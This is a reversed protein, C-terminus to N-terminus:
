ADGLAVSVARRGADRESKARYCAEDAQVLLAEVDDPKRAAAAHGVSAGITVTAGPLAFPERLRADIRRALVTAAEPGQPGPLLVAFEDGGMRVVTAEAPVLAVLREAVMTLLADGAAHGYRDNVPKFGDLDLCLVAVPAEADIARFAARLGIRNALGTLADRQALRAMKLRMDVHWVANRHVHRVSDFGGLLFLCFAAATIHHPPDNWSAVAAIPPLAAMLLTPFAIWPRIGVRVVIGSCYGFMLGTALMQLHLDHLRFMSAASVGVSLAVITALVAHAREWPRPDDQDLADRTTRRAQLRMLVVRAVSAGGGCLATVLFLSLGTQLYTYVAIGVLTCGMISTPVTSYALDAVLAARVAGSEIRSDRRSQM